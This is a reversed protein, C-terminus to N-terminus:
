FHKATQRVTERDAAAVAPATATTTTNGTGPGEIPKKVAACKKQGRGIASAAPM